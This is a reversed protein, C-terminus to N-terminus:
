PRGVQTLADVDLGIADGATNEQAFFIPLVQGIEGLLNTDVLRIKGLAFAEDVVNLAAEVTWDDQGEAPVGLLLVQPPTSIPTDYHFAVSTTAESNPVVEVWEDILLGGGYKEPLDAGITIAVMSIRGGLPAGGSASSLAIWPEGQRGGLQGIHLMPAAANNAVQAVADAYAIVRDIQCVPDRVRASRALWARAAAPTAGVPVAAGAFLTKIAMSQSFVPLVPYETGFVAQLRAGSESAGLENLKSTREQKMQMNSASFKLSVPAAAIALADAAFLASLIDGLEQSDQARGALGKVRHLDDEAAQARGALDAADISVSANEGPRVFDEPLLPRARFIANRLQCAIELTEVIGFISADWRPDREFQLEIMGNARRPNHNLLLACLRVELSSRQPTDRPNALQVIDLAGLPLNQMPERKAAENLEAMTVDFTEIAQGVDDRVTGTIHITLSAPLLKRALGDLLPEAAARPTLPWNQDGLEPTALLVLLRHTTGVGTRPTRAVSLEAPPVPAGSLSDAAAGARAPNGSVVQFVGEALTLEAAADVCDQAAALIRNLGSYAPDGLDLGLGLRAVDASTKGDYGAKELLTLGDVVNSAAVVEVPLTSPTLKNAVLPAM